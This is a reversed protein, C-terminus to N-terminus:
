KTADDIHCGFLWFSRLSLNKKMNESIVYQWATLIYSQLANEVIIYLRGISESFSNINVNIVSCGRITHTKKSVKFVPHGM